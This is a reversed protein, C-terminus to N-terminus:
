PAHRDRVTILPYSHRQVAGPKSSAQQNSDSRCPRVTKPNLDERTWGGAPAAPPGRNPWTSM